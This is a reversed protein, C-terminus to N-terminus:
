NSKRLALWKDISVFALAVILFGSLLIAVNTAMQAAPLATPDMFWYAYWGDAAGRVLAYTFYAFAPVVAWLASRWQLQGHAALFWALVSLVPTADHLAHDAVAQWGTPQWVSRLAISYVLGVILISTAVSLRADPSALFGLPRLVTATAVIAVAVNALITFFGFFRWVADAVSAGEGTMKQIILALQLVLASWAVLAVLISLYRAASALKM